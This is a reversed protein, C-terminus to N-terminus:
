ITIAVARLDEEPVFLDPPALEDRECVCRDVDAFLDVRDEFDAAL